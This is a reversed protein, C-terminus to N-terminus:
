NDESLSSDLWMFVPPRFDVLNNMVTSFLHFMYEKAFSEPIEVDGRRILCFHENPKDMCKFLEQPIGSPNLEVRMKTHDVTYYFGLFSMKEIYFATPGYEIDRVQNIRYVFNPRMFWRGALADHMQQLSPKRNTEAGLKVLRDKLTPLFACHSYVGPVNLREAHWKGDASNHSVNTVIDPSDPNNWALCPKGFFGYRFQIPDTEAIEFGLYNM